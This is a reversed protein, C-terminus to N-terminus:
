SIGYLDLHASGEIHNSCFDPTPRTDIIILDPTKQNGILENLEKPSILIEPNEYTDNM